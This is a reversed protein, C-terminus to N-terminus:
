MYGISNNQKTRLRNRIEFKQTSQALFLVSTPFNWRNWEVAASWWLKVLARDCTSSKLRLFIFGVIIDFLCRIISNHSVMLDGVMVEVFDKFYCPLFYILSSYNMSVQSDIPYSSKRDCLKRRVRSHFIKSHETRM